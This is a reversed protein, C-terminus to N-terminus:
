QVESAPCAARSYGWSRLAPGGGRNGHPDWVDLTECRHYGHASAVYGLLLADGNGLGVGVLVTGLGFLVCSLIPRTAGWGPWARSAVIVLLPAAMVVLDPGDQWQVIGGGTRFATAVRWTAVAGWLSSLLLFAGLFVSGALM